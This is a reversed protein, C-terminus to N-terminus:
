DEARTWSARELPIFGPYPPSFTFQSPPTLLLLLSITTKHSANKIKWTDCTVTAGTSCCRSCSWRDPPHAPSPSVPISPYLPTYLFSFSSLRWLPVAFAQRPGTEFPMGRTEVEYEGHNITNALAVMHPPLRAITRPDSEVRLNDIHVLINLPHFNGHIARVIMSLRGIQDISNIEFIDKPRAPREKDPPFPFFLSLSLSDHISDIRRHFRTRQNRSISVEATENRQRGKRSETIFRRCNQSQILFTEHQTIRSTVNSTTLLEHCECYIQNRDPNTYFM